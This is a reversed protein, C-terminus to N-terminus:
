ICDSSLKNTSKMEESFSLTQDKAVIRDKHCSKMTEELVVNESKGLLREKEFVQIQGQLQEIQIRLDNKEIKQAEIISKLKAM